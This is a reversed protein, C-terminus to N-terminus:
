SSVMNEVNAPYPNIVPGRHGMNQALSYSGQEKLFTGSAGGGGMDLEWIYDPDLFLSGLYAHRLSSLAECECLIHVSAEEETGCKWCM